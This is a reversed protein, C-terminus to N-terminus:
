LKLVLEYNTECYFYFNYNTYNDTVHVYNNEKLLKLGFKSKKLRIYILEKSLMNTACSHRITRQLSKFCLNKNKNMNKSIKVFTEFTEM